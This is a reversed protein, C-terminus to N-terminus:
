VRETLTEDSKSLIEWAPRFVAPAQPGWQASYVIQRLAAARFSAASHICRQVGESGTKLTEKPIKGLYDACVCTSYPDIVRLFSQLPFPLISGRSGLTASHIFLPSPPPLLFPLSKLSTPSQPVPASLLFCKLTM